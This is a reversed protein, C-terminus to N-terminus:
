EVTSGGLEEQPWGPHVERDPIHVPFSLHAAEGRTEGVILASQVQGPEGKTCEERWCTVLWFCWRARECLITEVMARMAEEGWVAVNMVRASSWPRTREVQGCGDVETMKVPVVRVREGVARGDAGEVDALGTAERKGLRGLLYAVLM